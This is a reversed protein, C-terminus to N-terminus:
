RAAQERLHRDLFALIARYGKARNEDKRFGHGEDPFVVYEVPIGNKEVAAVIEDSEVKLVRPDNAGQLVILPKVIKDAHFLPSISELYERDDVPHGLEAYLAERFSEWWPPISELTRLWNSVGFIDVGVEFEEPRYALAALVMYGGYSGGAIGIREPDVFGTGILMEKSAVCDDLDDKGHKRDDAKYFTKGYGSSGRNNIAYVVYGHNVLYQILDVYGVRSQGGPGGHVWLVAPAKNEATATWPRYLLGPIVMGDFSEFRVVEAEVLHAPDIAPNLSDTLRRPEGKPLDVVFLNRPHRSSTGYFALRSDDAAFGVASISMADIDPLPLPKMTGAEYIEIRTSADDNIGVVLRQGSRSLSAYMVDWEPQVLVKTEGSELVYEALYSFESDENTLFYISKGDSSFDQPSNLIEGERTTLNRTEGTSLDHILMDSDNRNHVKSLAIYRLDPSVASISLHDDNQFVMERRYDAVDIRYLDFARPDRENTTMFFSRGDKAWGVFGAKLNEGPSLDRTSGDEERVYIHTLENGGQDAAYLIRDDHRFYSIAFRSDGTSETLAQPDGGDVPIAYVNYIGTANSSVLIRSGDRSFSAGRYDTTELFEEISYSRFGEPPAFVKKEPTNTCSLLLISSMLLTFRMAITYPNM